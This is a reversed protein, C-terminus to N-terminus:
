FMMVRGNLPIAGASVATAIRIREGYYLLIPIPVFVCALLTGVCGDELNRYTAGAFLVFGAGFM